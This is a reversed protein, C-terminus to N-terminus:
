ARSETAEGHHRCFLDLEVMVLALM